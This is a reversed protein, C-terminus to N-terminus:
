SRDKESVDTDLVKMQKTAVFIEVTNARTDLKGRAIPATVTHEHGFASFLGSKHVHITILSHAPRAGAQAMATAAVVSWLVTYVRRSRLLCAGGQSAPATVM